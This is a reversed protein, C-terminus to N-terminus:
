SATKTGARIGSLNPTARPARADDSFDGRSGPDMPELGSRITERDRAEGDGLEPREAAFILGNKVMPTNKNAELWADWFEKDVGPTVGYGGIIVHSAREGVRTAGGYAVVEMDLPEAVKFDRYGGGLVPESREVMKFLRMRVGGPLKCYVRVKAGAHEPQASDRQVVQRPPAAARAEAM